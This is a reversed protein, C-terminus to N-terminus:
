KFRSRVIAVMPALMLLLWELGFGAAPNFVCGSSSSSGPVSGLVVPDVIGYNTSSNTDYSGNDKVVWNVYYTQTPDLISDNGMYTDGINKSVWWVGDTTTAASDAYTLDAVTSGDNMVKYLRLKQINGGVGTVQFSATYYFAKSGMVGSSTVSYGKVDTLPTFDSPLGTWQALLTKQTYGTSNRLYRGLNAGTMTANDQYGSNGIPATTAATPILFALSRYTADTAVTEYIGVTFVKDASQKGYFYGRVTRGDTDYITMNSQDIAFQSTSEVAVSYGTLSQDAKVMGASVAGADATLVRANGRLGLNADVSFQMIGATANGLEQNEVGSGAFVLNFARSKVDSDGLTTADKVMVAFLRQDGTDVYGTIMNEDANITGNQILTLYGAKAKALHLYGGTTGKTMGTANYTTSTKSTGDTGNQLYYAVNVNDTGTLAGIEVQGYITVPQAKRIGYAYFSWSTNASNKFTGNQYIMPMSVGFGPWNAYIGKKGAAVAVATSNYTSNVLGVMMQYNGAPVFYTTSNLTNNGPEYTTLGSVNGFLQDFNLHPHNAVNATGLSNNGFDRQRAVSGNTFSITGNFSGETVAASSNVYFLDSKTAGSLNSTVFVVTGQTRGLVKTTANLGLGTFYLSTGNNGVGGGYTARDGGISGNYYAPFEATIAAFASSVCFVLLVTFIGILKKM